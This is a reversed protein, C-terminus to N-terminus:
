SILVCFAIPYECVGYKIWAKLGLLAMPNVNGLHIVSLFKDSSCWSSAYSIAVEKLLQFSSYYLSSGL